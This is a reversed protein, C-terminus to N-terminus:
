ERRIHLMVTVRKLGSASVVYFALVDGANLTTSVWGTPTGTGKVDNNINPATGTGVISTMNPYATYPCRRLDVSISGVSPPDGDTSLLAWAVITGAVPVWLAGKFGPTIVNVGDGITERVILTELSHIAITRQAYDQTLQINTGAQLKVDGKLPQQGVVQLTTVVDYVLPVMQPSPPVDPLVVDGVWVPTTGSPVRICHYHTWPKGDAGEQVLYYSQPDDFQDNPILALQWRGTADTTTTVTVPMAEAQQSRSRQPFVLTAKVPENPVPNGSENVLVNFVTRLTFPM